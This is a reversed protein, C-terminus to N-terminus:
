NNWSSPDTYGSPDSGGPPTYASPDGENYCDLATYPSVEYGSPDYYSSPDFYTSPDYYSSPDSFPTPYFQWDALAQRNIFIDVHPNFVVAESLGCSSSEIRITRKGDVVPGVSSLLIEEGEELLCNTGNAESTEFASPDTYGYTSPDTYGFPRILLTKRNAILRATQCVRDDQLDQWTRYEIRDDNCRVEVLGKPCENFSKIDLATKMFSKEDERGCTIIVALIVSVLLSTSIFSKWRFLM